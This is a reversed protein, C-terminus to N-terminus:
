WVVITPPIAAAPLFVKHHLEREQALWWRRPLVNLTSLPTKALRRTSLIEKPPPLHVRSCEISPKLQKWRNIIINM